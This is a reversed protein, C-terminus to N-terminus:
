FQGTLGPVHHIEQEATKRSQSVRNVYNEILEKVFFYIDDYKSLFNNHTLEHCNKVKFNIGTYCVNLQM